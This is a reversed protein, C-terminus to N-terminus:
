NKRSRNEAIAKRVIEAKEDTINEFYGSERDISNRKLINCDKQTLYGNDRLNGLIAEYRDSTFEKDLM